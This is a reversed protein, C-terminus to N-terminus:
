LENQKKRIMPKSRDIILSLGSGFFYFKLPGDPLAPPKGNTIIVDADTKPIKFTGFELHLDSLIQLKM